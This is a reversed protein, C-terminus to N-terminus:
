NESSSRSGNNNPNVFYPPEDTNNLRDLWNIPTTVSRLKSNGNNILSSSSLNLNLQGSPSNGIIVSQASPKYTETLARNYSRTTYTSYDNNTM